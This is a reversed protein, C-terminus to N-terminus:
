AADISEPRIMREAPLSVCVTTGQGFRSELKLTGGHAEVMAKTLPLGLGTGARTRTFSNEVQEFPELVKDLKDEPIGIGTDCVCFELGGNDLERARLTIAGGAPTFKIANSLLNVLVRRVHQEDASILPLASPMVVNLKVRATEISQRLMRLVEAGIERLDIVDEHLDVHGAEIKAMDLLENIMRLLHVGSHHIDQVYDLYRPPELPGLLQLRMLDAFGIIANLPTRLEHSMGALFQTKSENAAEARRRQRELEEARAMVIDATVRMLTAASGLGLYRGNEEVIFGQLPSSEPASFLKTNIDECSMWADVIVPNANMLATICQRGYIERGFMRVYVLLFDQRSVLGVPRGNEVVPINLLDGEDLLRDFVEACSIGPALPTVPEALDRATPNPM